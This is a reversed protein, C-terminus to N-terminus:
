TKWLQPFESFYQFSCFKGQWFIYMLYANNLTFILSNNFFFLKTQIVSYIYSTCPSEGKSQASLFHLM